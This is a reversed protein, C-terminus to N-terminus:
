TVAQLPSSVKPVEKGIAHSTSVIQPIKYPVAGVPAAIQTLEEQVPHPTRWVAFIGNKIPDAIAKAPFLDGSRIARM